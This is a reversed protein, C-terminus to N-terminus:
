SFFKPFYTNYFEHELFELVLATNLINIDNALSKETTSFTIPPGGNLSALFPNARALVQDLTLPVGYPSGGDLFPLDLLSNLYGSQTLEVQGISGAQTVLFPNEIYPSAGLYAGAGTSCFMTGMKLFQVLNAPALNKFTPRPRAFAGLEGLLAQLHANENNIINQIHFRVWHPDHQFPLTGSYDSEARGTSTTALVAAPVATAMATNKLFSRRTPDQKKSSGPGDIPGPSPRSDELNSMTITRKSGRAAMKLAARMARPPDFSSCYDSWILYFHLTQAIKLM